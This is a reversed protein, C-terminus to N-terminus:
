RGALERDCREIAASLKPGELEPPQQAGQKGLAELLSLSRQYCSRAERWLDARRAAQRDSALDAVADGLRLHALALQRRLDARDPHRSALSEFLATARRGHEAAVTRDGSASLLTSARRYATGM